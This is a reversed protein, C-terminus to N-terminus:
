FHAAAAATANHKEGNTTTLLLLLRGAADEAPCHHWSTGSWQQAALCVACCGLQCLQQLGCYSRSHPVRRATHGQLDSAAEAPTGVAELAQTETHVRGVPHRHTHQFRTHPTNVPQSKQVKVKMVTQMVQPTTHTDHLAHYPLVHRSSGALLMCWLKTHAALCQCLNVCSEVKSTSGRHTYKHQTVTEDYQIISIGEYCLTACCLMNCVSPDAAYELLRSWAVVDAACHMLVINCWYTCVTACCTCVWKAAIGAYMVRTQCKRMGASLEQLCLLGSLGLVAM